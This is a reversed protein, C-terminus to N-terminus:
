DSYPCSNVVEDLFLTDFAIKPNALQVEGLFKDLELRSLGLDNANNLVEKTM